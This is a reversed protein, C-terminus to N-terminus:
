LKKKKLSKDKIEQSAFSSSDFSLISVAHCNNRDRIEDILDFDAVICGGVRGRGAKEM